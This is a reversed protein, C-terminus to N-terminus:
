CQQHPLKEKNRSSSTEWWSVALEDSECKGPSGQDSGQLACSSAEDQFSVFAMPSFVGLRESGGKRRKPFAAVLWLFFNDFLLWVEAMSNRFIAEFDINDHFEALAGFQFVLWLCQTVDM